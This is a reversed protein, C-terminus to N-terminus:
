HEVLPVLILFTNGKKKEEGDNYAKLAFNPKKDNYFYASNILLLINKLKILSFGIFEHPSARGSPRVGQGEVAM